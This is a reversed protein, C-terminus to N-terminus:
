WDLAVWHFFAPLYMAWYAYNHSGATFIHTHPIGAGDLLAMMSRAADQMFPDDFGSNLFVRPTNEPTMAALWERIKDEEGSVAGGGFMGVSAFRDPFRFVIRYAAISGLSGGAVSRHRREPSVPYHSEVYPMLDELITAAYMEAPSDINQTTVILFPPIERSLILEDALAAAGAAFWTGPGSTRGPILYLIPYVGGAKSDFCPPLYIGYGYSYGRSTTELNPYEVTGPSVCGEPLAAPSPGSEPAHVLRCGTLLCLCPLLFRIKMMVM